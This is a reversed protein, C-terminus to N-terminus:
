NQEKHFGVILPSWDYVLTEEVVEHFDWFEFHVSRVLDLFGHFFAEAQIELIGTKLNGNM